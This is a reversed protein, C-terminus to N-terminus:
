RFSALIARRLAADVPPAIGFWAEFGPRAQHLLMGLGDVIPNGRDRAVALLPTLLPVYVLDAVIAAPPLGALDLDLPPHGAMGQSTTNVLLAAGELAKSRAAWPWVQLSADLEEALAVARRGTRNIVRIEPVGAAALAAIVARASGGAGAIVAPGAAACWGPVAARLNELFGFGDTSSGRLAGDPTVVITNVSAIRRAEPEVYDLLPLVATKHPLTVNCGAFGLAPLARILRPLEAPEVPLPLYAGAIGYRDLWHRHLIPSRSHDIPWGVVGALRFAGGGLIGGGLIDVM